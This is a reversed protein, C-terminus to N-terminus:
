DDDLGGTQAVAGAADGVDGLHHTHFAIGDNRLVHEEVVDDALVGVPLDDASMARGADSPWAKPISRSIVAFLLPESGRKVGGFDDHLDSSRVMFMCASERAKRAAVAM